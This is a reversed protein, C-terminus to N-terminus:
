CVSVVDIFGVYTVSRHEDLMACDIDWHMVICGFNGGFGEWVGRGRDCGRRRRRRGLFM